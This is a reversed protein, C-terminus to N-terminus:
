IMDLPERVPKRLSVARNRWTEESDQLGATWTEAVSFQIFLTVCRESVLVFRYRQALPDCVLDAIDLTFLSM